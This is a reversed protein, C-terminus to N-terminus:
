LPIVIAYQTGRGLKSEIYIEGHLIEVRNMINSLGLGNGTKLVTEYDFGRGDDRANLIIKKDNLYISLELKKARAHRITNHLIELAIRYLHIETEKSFIIVADSNFSIVPGGTINLNDIFEKIATVLGKRLLVLPMLDNSIERIRHLITDIHNKSNGIIEIDEKDDTNLCNMQMRVASLLPGLEDHLDAAIRKREKEVTMIEAQIKEKHLALTKRQQRIITIIFYVLMIGVVGAAILVAIYIKAEKTDM